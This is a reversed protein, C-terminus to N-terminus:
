RKKREDRRVTYKTFGTMLAESKISLESTDNFLCPHVKINDCAIYWPKGKRNRNYCLNLMSVIVYYYYTFFYDNRLRLYLYYYVSKM